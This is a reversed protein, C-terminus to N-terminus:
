VAEAYYHNKVSTQNSIEPQFYLTIHPSTAITSGACGISWRSIEFDASLAYANLTTSAATLSASDQVTM